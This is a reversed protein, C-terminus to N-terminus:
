QQSQWIRLADSWYIDANFKTTTGMLEQGGVEAFVAFLQQTAAIEQITFQTLLTDPYNAQLSTFVQENEAKTLNRIRLW